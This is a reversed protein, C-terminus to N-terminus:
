DDGKTWETSLRFRDAIYFNESVTLLREAPDFYARLMRLAPSGPELGLQILANEPMLAGEIQQRVRHIDQGYDEQLMKFISPHNGRLRQKIAAFEPRLYVRSYSIVRGNDVLCRNAHLVVWKSGPECRLSEAMAEDAVAVTEGFLELRTQDTYALIDKMSGLGAVYSPLKAGPQASTVVTGISPYRVIMGTDVLKRTAERVTHRSVGFTASLQAETPLLSGVPYKGSIIENLLCQHLWAYRPQTKSRPTARTPRVANGPPNRTMGNKVPTEKKM